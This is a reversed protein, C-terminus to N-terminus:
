HHQYLLEHAIHVRIILIRIRRSALLLIFRDLLFRGQSRIILLHDEILLFPLMRWLFVTMLNQRHSL